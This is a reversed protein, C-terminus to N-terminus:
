NLAGDKISVSSTSMDKINEVLSRTSSALLSCTQKAEDLIESLRDANNKSTEAMKETHSKADLAEELAERGDEAGSAEVADEVQARQVEEADAEALDIDVRVAGVAVVDGDLHLQAGKFCGSGSGRTTKSQFGTSPTSGM